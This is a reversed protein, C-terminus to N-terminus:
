KYVESAPSDKITLVYQFYDTTVGGLPNKISYLYRSFPSDKSDLKYLTAISNSTDYFILADNLSNTIFNSGGNDSNKYKCNFYVYPISLVKGKFPSEKGNLRAAFNENPIYQSNIKKLYTHEAGFQGYYKGKPYHSYVLNFNKYITDERRSYSDSKTDILNRITMEFDFFDKGLFNKYIDRKKQIDDYITQALKRDEAYNHSRDKNKIINVAGTIESPVDKGNILYKLCNWTTNPQFEIDIGIVTIKKDEPLTKNYNYLKVFTDFYNQDYAFTGVLEAYVKRLLSEDGTKLYKNILVGQSYSEELLYYNVGANKNLYKLFKLMADANYATAHSEGTFFIEYNRIDNDLVKFSSLDDNDGIDINYKNNNLYKIIDREDEDKLNTLKEPLKPKANKILISYQFYDLTVGGAAYPILYTTKRFPSNFGNLRFLTVDSKAAKDIIDFSDIKSDIAIIDSCAVNPGYATPIQCNKYLFEISLVKKYVPSDSSALLEGFYKCDNSGSVIHKQSASLINFSGYYKGGLKAYLKNFNKYLTNECLKNVDDDKFTEIPEKILEMKEDIVYKFNEYNKGLCQKYDETNALINNNIKKIFERYSNIDNGISAYNKIDNITQEIAKSPKEGEDILMNLYIFDNEDSGEVGIGCVKIKRDEDLTKNYEYLSTWKNYPGLNYSDVSYLKKILSEDGTDLYKNIIESASFQIDSLYFRVEANKNLYKLLQLDIKDNDDLSYEYGSLFVVNKNLDSNLLEFNSENFNDEDIQSSNKSLYKLLKDDNINSGRNGLYFTFIIIVATVVSLFAVAKKNWVKEM